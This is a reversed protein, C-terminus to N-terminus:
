MGLKILLYTEFPVRVEIFFSDGEKLNHNVFLDHRTIRMGKSDYTKAIITRGDKADQISTRYEEGDIILKFTVKPAPFYNRAEPKHTLIDIASPNPNYRRASFEIRASIKTEESSSRFLVTSDVM